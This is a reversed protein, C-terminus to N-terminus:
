QVLKLSRVSNELQLLRRNIQQRHADYAKAADASEKLRTEVLHVLGGDDEIVKKLTSDLRNIRASLSELQEQNIASGTTIEANVSRLEKQLVALEKQLATLDKQTADANKQFSSLQVRNKDVLGAVVKSDKEVSDLRKGQSAINSRNRKNSLDWLKRIEFNIAKLEDKVQSDSRSLSEGTQSVTGSVVTLRATTQELQQRALNLDDQVAKLQLYGGAALALLAVSLVVASTPFRGGGTNEKSKGSAAKGSATKGSPKRGREAPRETLDDASLSISPLQDLDDQSRSNMLESIDLRNQPWTLQSGPWNYALAITPMTSSVWM